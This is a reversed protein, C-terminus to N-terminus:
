RPVGLFYNYTVIVKGENQVFLFHNVNGIILFFPVKQFEFM